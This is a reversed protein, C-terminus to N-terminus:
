DQRNVPNILQLNTQNKNKVFHIEIRRTAM